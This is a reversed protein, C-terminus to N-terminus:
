PSRLFAILDVMDRESIASEMGPPMLSQGNTSLRSIEERSFTQSSGGAFKMEVLASTEAAILGSVSQGNQLELTYTAWREEVARNPALIDTLLAEDPKFRIDDLSPGVETGLNKIRHCTICASKQFVLRGNVADGMGNKLADQYRSIVEARDENPSGFLKRALAAIEPAKRRTLWWRRFAPMLSPNIEGAQMRQMLRYATDERSSLFELAESLAAPGLQNWQEFYFDAVRRRDLNALLRCAARQMEPAEKQNALHTLIDYQVNETQERLLPLVAM